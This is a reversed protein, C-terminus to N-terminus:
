RFRHGRFRAPRAKARLRSQDIPSSDHDIRAKRRIGRHRRWCGRAVPFPDIQWCARHCPRDLAQGRPVLFPRSATGSEMTRLPLPKGQGRSIAATTPATDLDKPKSRMKTVALGAFPLPGKSPPAYVQPMPLAAAPHSAGCNGPLLANAGVPAPWAFFPRDRCNEAKSDSASDRTLGRWFRNEASM